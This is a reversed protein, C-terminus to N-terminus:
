KKFLNTESGFFPNPQFQNRPHAQLENVFLPSADEEVPAVHVDGGYIEVASILPMVLMLMSLLQGFSWEKENEDALAVSPKGFASSLLVVRVAAGVAVATMALLGVVQVMKYWRQARSHLYWTALGFTAVNGVIVAITGVYSLAGAAGPPKGFAADGDWVCAVPLTSVSMGRSVVQLVFVGSVCSLVLNALMLLQRLWRLVWGRRYDRALALLAANHTAMSLLSLMWVLFFHYPVLTQMKALAVSQIGIGQVIQSDSLGNLLKRQVTSASAPRGRVQAAVVSASLALALVATIMFSLLIGTGAVGPESPAVPPAVTCNVM